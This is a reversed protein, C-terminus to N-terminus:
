MLDVPLRTTEAVSHAGCRARFARRREGSSGARSGDTSNPGFFDASAKREWDTMPRSDKLAERTFAMWALSASLGRGLLEQVTSEDVWAPLMEGCRVHRTTASNREGDELKRGYGAHVQPIKAVNVIGKVVKYKSM